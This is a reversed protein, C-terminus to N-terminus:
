STEELCALSTVVVDVEAVRFRGGTLTALATVKQSGALRVRTAIDAKGSQPGLHFVAVRPRPNREAFVHIARVHDADTMPSAVRIRLAVSNGNEALTPLELSVDSREPTAGGTVEAVLTGIDSRPPLTQAAAPLVAAGIAAGATRLFTRRKM